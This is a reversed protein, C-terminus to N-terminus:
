SIVKRGTLLLYRTDRDKFVYKEGPRILEAGEQFDKVHKQIKAAEERTINLALSLAGTTMETVATAVSLQTATLGAITAATTGM